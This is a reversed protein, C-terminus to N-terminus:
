APRSTRDTASWREVDVAAAPDQAVGPCVVAQDPLEGDADVCGNGEDLVVSRRLRPVRDGDLLDVRGGSPDPRVPDVTPRSALRSAMAPSETPPLMVAARRDEGLLAAVHGEAVLREVVGDGVGGLVGPAVLLERLARMKAGLGHGPEPIGVERVDVLSGLDGGRGQAGREVVQGPKGLGEEHDVLVVHEAVLSLRVAAPQDLGAHARGAHAVVARQVVEHHEVRTRGDAAAVAATSCAIWTRRLASPVLQCMAPPAGAGGM